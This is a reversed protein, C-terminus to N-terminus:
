AASRHASVALQRGVEQRRRLISRPVPRSEVDEIVQQIMSRLEQAIGILEVHNITGITAAPDAASIKVGGTAQQQVLLNCFVISGTEEDAQIARHALQPNYTCLVIAPRSDVALHPQLIKGLDLQAIVTLEHRELAERTATVAEELTMDVSKSFFYM